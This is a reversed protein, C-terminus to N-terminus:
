KLMEDINTLTKLALISFFIRFFCSFQRYDYYLNLGSDDYQRSDLLYVYIKQKQLPCALFWDIQRRAPLFRRIIMASM